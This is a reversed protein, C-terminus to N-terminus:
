GAAAPPSPEIPDKPVFHVCCWSPFSALFALTFFMPHGLRQNLPGSVWRSYTGGASVVATAIAFHSASFARRCRQMQFVANAATGVGAVFQEVM